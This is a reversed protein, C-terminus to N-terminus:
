DILRVGYVRDAKAVQKGGPNYFFISRPEGKIICDADAIARVIRLRKNIDDPSLHENFEVVLHDGEEYIKAMQRANKMVKQASAM